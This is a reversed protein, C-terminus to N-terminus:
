VPNARCLLALVQKSYPLKYLVLSVVVATPPLGSSCLSSPSHSLVFWGCAKSHSAGHDRRVRWATCDAANCFNGSWLWLHTVDTVTVPLTCSYLKPVCCSVTSAGSLSPCCVCAGIGRGQDSAVRCGGRCRGFVCPSFEAGPPPTWKSNNTHDTYKMVSQLAYAISHYCLPFQRARCPYMPLVLGLRSQLLACELLPLQVGAPPKARCICCLKAADCARAPATPVVFDVARPCVSSRHRNYIV